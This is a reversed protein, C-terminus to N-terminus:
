TLQSLCFHPRNLFVLILLLTIPIQFLLKSNISKSWWKPKKIGCEIAKNADTENWIPPLQYMILYFKFTIFQAFPLPLSLPLSIDSCVSVSPKHLPPSSSHIYHFSLCPNSPLHHWQFALQDLSSLQCKFVALWCSCGAGAAAGGGEGGGRPVLPTQMPENTM